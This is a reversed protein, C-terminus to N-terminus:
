YNSGSRKIGIIRLFDRNLKQSMLNYIAKETVERKKMNKSKKHNIYLM